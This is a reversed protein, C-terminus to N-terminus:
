SVSTIIVTGVNVYHWQLLIWIIDNSGYGYLSVSKVASYRFDSACHDLTQLLRPQGHVIEGLPWVGCCNDWNSDGLQGYIATLRSVAPREGTNLM